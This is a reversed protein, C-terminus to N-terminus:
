IQAGGAPKERDQAATINLLAGDSLGSNGDIVIRDGDSFQGEIEIMDNLRYGTIVKARAAKGGADVFVYLGDDSQLIAKEPILYSEKVGTLISVNVSMGIKLIKSKNSGTVIITGAMIDMNVVPPVSSVTGSVALASDNAYYILASQGKKVKLLDDQGINFVVKINDENAVEAVPSQQDVKGGRDIFYLKTVVGAIPAKVPALEYKYGIQDRDVYAVVDDKNVRAGEPVANKVFKGAVQPYVKVQPDGELIGQVTIMHPVKQKELTYVSVSYSTEKEKKACNVLMFCVIIVVAAFVAHQVANKDFTRKV